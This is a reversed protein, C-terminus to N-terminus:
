QQVERIDRIGPICDNASIGRTRLSEALERYEEAEAPLGYDEAIEIFVLSDDVPEEAGAFLKVIADAACDAVVRYTMAHLEYQEVEYIPM